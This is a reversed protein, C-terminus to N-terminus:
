GSLTEAEALVTKQRSGQIGISTLAAPNRLLDQALILRHEEVLASKERRTLSHLCTLPHIGTRSVWERLGYGSPSDWGVLTMGVCAGYRLADETFRTNTFIFCCMSRGELFLAKFDGELLDEYRAQVYLAVKLDNILRQNNRFKCEGFIIKNKNDAIIDVEHSICRGNRVTGKEVTFGDAELLRAIFAEFPYGSPGLAFLAQKLSYRSAATRNYRRLLQHARRYVQKTTTMSRWDKLIEQVVADAEDATAGARQLSVRLKSPEFLVEEGSAKRITKNLM